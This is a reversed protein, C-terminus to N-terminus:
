QTVEEPQPLLETLIQEIHPKLDRELLEQQLKLRTKSTLSSPERRELKLVIYWSEVAIPAHIQGPALRRLVDAIAPHPDNITMPGMMGAALREEGASFTSALDEFSKEDDLLRLYLEEALGMEKVRIARYTVRELDARRTLYYPEVEIDYLENIRKQLRLKKIRQELMAAQSDDLQDRWPADFSDPPAGPLGQWAKNFLEKVQEPNFSADAALQEEALQRLMPVLLQHQHLVQNLHQSQLANLQATASQQLSTNDIM